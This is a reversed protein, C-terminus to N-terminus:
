SSSEGEDMPKFGQRLDPPYRPEGFIKRAILAALALVMSVGYLSWTVAFALDILHETKPNV